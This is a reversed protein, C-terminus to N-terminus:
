NIWNIKLRKVPKEKVFFSHSQLYASSGIGTSFFVLVDLDDVKPPISNKRAPKTPASMTPQIM